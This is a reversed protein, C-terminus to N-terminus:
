NSLKIIYNILVTGITLLALGGILKPGNKIPYFRDLMMIIALAILPYIGPYHFFAESFEGRILSATSRQLGCGPCDFGFVKKSLCPIMYDEIKLM